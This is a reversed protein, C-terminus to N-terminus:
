GAPVPHQRWGAAPRPRCRADTREPLFCLPGCRIRRRATRYPFVAIEPPSVMVSVSLNNCSQGSMKASTRVSLAKMCCTSRSAWAAAKRVRELATWASTSRRRCFAPASGPSPTVEHLVFQGDGATQRAQVLQDLGLPGVPVLAGLELLVGLAADAGLDAALQVAYMDAPRHHHPVQPNLRVAAPIPVVDGG